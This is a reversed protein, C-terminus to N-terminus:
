KADVHRQEIPFSFPNKDPELLFNHLDRIITTEEGPSRRVITTSEQSSRWSSEHVKSVDGLEIREMGEVVRWCNTTSPDM